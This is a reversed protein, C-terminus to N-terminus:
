IKGEKKMDLYTVALAYAQWIDASFGYFFGPTKKTGKGYNTEGPAFRDVLAQTVNPDKARPSGCLHMKVVNRQLLQVIDCCCSLQEIFRGIWICTEYIDKGAAMGTGYSPVMEIVAKSAPLLDEIEDVVDKNEFKGIRLPRYTLEDIVVVGSRTTGPDIALIHEV